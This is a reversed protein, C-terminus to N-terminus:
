TDVPAVFEALEVENVSSGDNHSAFLGVGDTDTGSKVRAYIATEDDALEADDPADGSARPSQLYETIGGFSIAENPDASEKNLYLRGDAEYVEYDDLQENITGADYYYEGDQTEAM